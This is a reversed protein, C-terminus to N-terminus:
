LGLVLRLRRDVEAQTRPGISGLRRQIVSSEVTVLKHLRIASSVRLGTPVFEPDSTDLLYDAAAISGRIVSSIGALVVDKAIAGQSVVLAPRVASGSL